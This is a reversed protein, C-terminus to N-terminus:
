TVINRITCNTRRYVYGHLLLLLYASLQHKCVQEIRPDLSITTGEPNWYFYHKERLTDSVCGKPLDYGNGTANIFVSTAFDHTYVKKMKEQADKCEQWTKITVCWRCLTECTCKEHVKCTADSVM